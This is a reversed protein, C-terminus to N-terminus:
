PAQRAAIRWAYGAPHGGFRSRTGGRAEVPRLLGAGVEIIRRATTISARFAECSPIAGGAAPASRTRVEDLTSDSVDRRVATV